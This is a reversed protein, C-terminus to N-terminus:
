ETKKPSPHDREALIKLVVNQSEQNLGENTQDRIQRRASESLLWGLPLKLPQDQVTFEEYVHEISGRRFRQSRKSAAQTVRLHGEANDAGALTRPPADAIAVAARLHRLSAEGRASRTNLLTRIPALLDGYAEDQNEERKMKASSGPSDSTATFETTPLTTLLTTPATTNASAATSEEDDVYGIRLVILRVKRAGHTANHDLIGAMIEALTDTGSDEFYGGDVYRRKVQQGDSTWTLLYGPPTVVPFRASLTVATSLKIIADPHRKGFTELNSRRPDCELPTIVVKRGTEVETTNLFLAPTADNPFHGISDLPNEFETGHTGKEWGREFANELAKARDFYPVPFPLFKQVLDPYLLAALTPSLFDRALVADVKTLFQEDALPPHDLSSERNRAHTAALAAFVGAGVSGGSVGSIAFVHRCFAGNSADQLKALVYAAHYAAYIGGGEASVIVM